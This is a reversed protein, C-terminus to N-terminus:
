KEEENKEKFFDEFSKKIIYIWKDVEEKTKLKPYHGPLIHIGEEKLRKIFYKHIEREM